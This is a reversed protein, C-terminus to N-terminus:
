WPSRPYGPLRATRAISTQPPIYIRPAPAQWGIWSGLGARWRDIPM